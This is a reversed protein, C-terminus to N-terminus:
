SQGGLDCVEKYYEAQERWIRSPVFREEVWERGQKGHRAAIDPNDHYEVVASALQDTCGPTVLTGSAGNRVADRVGVIDYAVVPVQMASAEAAALGFGERVSPFLMVDFLSLFREPHDTRDVYRYDAEAMSRRLLGPWEEGMENPGVLLFTLNPISNGIQRAVLGFDLAGKDKSMRGVYGVVFRNRLGLSDRLEDSGASVARREFRKECDIGNISGDCIVDIKDRPVLGRDICFEALSRSVALVRHSLRFPIREMALMAGRSLQNFRMSVLGHLHYLVTSRGVLRAAISGLLSAKPTHLHVVDFRQKRFLFVLGLLARLDSFPSVTRKLPVEYIQVGPYSKKLNGIFGDNPVALSIEIGNAQM